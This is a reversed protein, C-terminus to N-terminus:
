PWALVRPTIRVTVDRDLGEDLFFVFAHMGSLPEYGCEEPSEAWTCQTGGAYLDGDEIRGTLPVESCTACQEHIVVVQRIESGDDVRIEYYGPTEIMVQKVLMMAGGTEGIVEPQDCGFHVSFSTAESPGVVVDPEGACDTLRARYQHHNCTPYRGYAALVDTLPIGLVHQVAADWDALDPAEVAPIFECLGHVSAIGYTELLFAVFHGARDYDTNSTPGASALLEELPPGLVESAPMSPMADELVVALGEELVPTCTRGHVGWSVAHALEHDHALELSTIDGHSHHARHNEALGLEDWRSPSLWRYHIRFSTQSGRADHFDLLTRVSDDTAQLSEGCAQEGERDHGDITVYEGRWEFDYQDQWPQEVCGCGVVFAIAGLTSVHKM